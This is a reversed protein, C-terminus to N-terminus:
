RLDLLLTALDWLIEAFDNSYVTRPHNLAISGIATWTIEVGFDEYWQTHNLTMMALRTHEYM